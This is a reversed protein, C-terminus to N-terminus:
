NDLVFLSPNARKGYRRVEYHLHPGTVAGSNGARAIPQGKSVTDGRRVFYKYLHAYTSQYGWTHDIIICRGYGANWRARKVIGNGTAYVTDQWAALYDTGGHMQWGTRLPSRRWGYESSVQLTDLPSGLPLNDIINLLSDLHMNIDQYQQLVENMEMEHSDMINILDRKQSDIQHLIFGIFFIVLLCITIKAEKNM